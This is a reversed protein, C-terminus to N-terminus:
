DDLLKICEDPIRLQLKCTVWRRRFSHGTYGTEWGLGRLLYKQDKICQGYKLSIPGLFHSM